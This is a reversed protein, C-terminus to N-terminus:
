RKLIDGIVELFNKPIFPKPIFEYGKKRIEDPRAKEDPFGSMLLVKTGGQYSIQDALNIGSRGGPLVVDSIVLDFRDEKAIIDLAEKVDRAESIKYQRNSLLLRALKMVEEDDEVVLIRENNGKLEGLLFDKREVEAERNSYDAPPLFIRFTTGKGVQSEVQIFGEHQKIVGYVISLGLGTGKSVDKTTFFPDFIKELNDKEIGTGNDSVTMCIFDGERSEPIVKTDEKRVFVRNFSVTINGGKDHDVIAHSANVVLNVIVQEMKSPDANIQFDGEADRIELNINEGFGKQLLKRLSIALEFMSFTKTELSQKRSFALLQKTLNGAKTGANIIHDLYSHVTEETFSRSYSHDTLKIQAISSYGVIATLINNFDHAIGGALTGIAEMKQAHFLQKEMEKIQTLDRWATHLFIKGEQVIKTLIVDVSIEKGDKRLHTWEFRAKGEYLVKAIIEEAIVFSEIKNQQFRPSIEFPHKGIIFSEDNDTCLMDLAARNCEIFINEEGDILLYGDSSDKYILRYKEESERLAEESKSSETIDEHFILYRAEDSPNKELAVVKFDIIKSEGTKSIITSIKSVIEGPKLIMVENVWETVVKKRYNSDPYALLFWEKKNLVDSIDFGTFETFRPNVYLYNGKEDMMAIGLPSNDSLIQFKKKERYLKQEDEVIKTIEDCVVLVFIEGKIQIKSVSEGVWIMEGTKKIKRFRWKLLTEEPSELCKQFQKLVTGKDDEHFVRLVSEGILEAKPYGLDEVARENVMCVKGEEDMIFVMIPLKEYIKWWLSKDAEFFNKGM